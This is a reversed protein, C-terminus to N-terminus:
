KYANVIRTAVDNNPVTQIFGKEINIGNAINVDPAIVRGGFSVTLNKAINSSLLSNFEVACAPDDKLTFSVQHINKNPTLLEINSVCDKKLSFVQKGVSYTLVNEKYANVCGTAILSFAVLVFLKIQM